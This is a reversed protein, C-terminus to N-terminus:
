GPSGPGELGPEVRFGLEERCAEFCEPCVWEPQHGDFTPASVCKWGPAVQPPQRDPKVPWLTMWGATLVEDRWAEPDQAFRVWCCHCHDHDWELSVTKYETWRFTFGKLHGLSRECDQKRIEPSMEM